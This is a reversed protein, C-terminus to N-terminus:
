HVGEVLPGLHEVREEPKMPSLTFRTMQMEGNARAFGFMGRGDGDFSFYCGPYGNLSVAGHRLGLEPVHIAALIALTIPTQMVLARAIVEFTPLFRDPDDADGLQQFDPDEALVMFSDFLAGFSTSGPQHAVTNVAERLKEVRARVHPPITAM